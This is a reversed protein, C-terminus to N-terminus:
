KDIKPVPTKGYTVHSNDSLPEIRIELPKPLNVDEILLDLCFTKLFSSFVEKTHHAQRIYQNKTLVKEPM